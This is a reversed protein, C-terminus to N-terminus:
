KKRGNTAILSIFTMFSAIFLVLSMVFIYTKNQIVIDFTLKNTAILYILNSAKSISIGSFGALAAKGIVIPINNKQFFFKRFQFIKIVILIIISLLVFLIDLDVVM